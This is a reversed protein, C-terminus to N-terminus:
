RRPLTRSPLRRLVRRRPRPRLTRRMARAATLVSSSTCVCLSIPLKELHKPSGFRLAELAPGAGDKVASLLQEDTKSPLLTRPTRFAKYVLIHMFYRRCEPMWHLFLRFFLKPALLVKQTLATRLPGHFVRHLNYVFSLKM